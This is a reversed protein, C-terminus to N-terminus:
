RRQLWLIHERKPREGFADHERRGLKRREQWAWADITMGEPLADRVSQDAPVAANGAVSDGIVIAAAGGPRLVRGMEALAAALDRQWARSARRRDRSGGKFDRRAGIEAGAFREARMGLFDLRLQHQDAYDYTGAYPPSTVVADVSAAELALSRADGLVVEGAPARSAEALEDLGALLLDARQRLLRAAAGRPVTRKVLTADTDSTRHSVKYLISSLLVTLIEALEPDHDRVEDIAGAIFELERRVHPSFWDRIARDRAKLDVGRPARIPSPQYGARRAAKGEALTASSIDAAVRALERRRAAPVTWTKARAIAVALPNADVGICRCGAYRGEVLTTGSGCFPDLLVPQGARVRDLAAEVLARATGPHMRAPYSHLPHTVSAAMEPDRGSALAAALAAARRPDGGREIRGATSAMSLARRQKGPPRPKGTSM